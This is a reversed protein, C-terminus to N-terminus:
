DEVLDVKKEVKKIDVTEYKGSKGIYSMKATIKDDNVDISVFNGHYNSSKTFGPFVFYKVGECEESYLDEIHGSFVALVNNKSFLARLENANEVLDSNPASDIEYLPPQHLFIIKKESSSLEKKLWTIEKQPVNGRNYPNGPLVPKGSGDFNTDLIIIKYNKVKFSKQTYNIGLAKTLQAKQVSRLEHNGVVWYKEISTRDFLERIQNLEGIGRSAPVKTGEITDGNVILADAGFNNNMQKLFYNIRDTYIKQLRWKGGIYESSAHIDTVFGLHLSSGNNKVATNFPAIEIELKENNNDANEEIEQQQESEISLQDIDQEINEEAKESLVNGESTVEYNTSEDTAETEANEIGSVPIYLYSSNKKQAVFVAIALAIAIVALSILSYILKKKKLLM